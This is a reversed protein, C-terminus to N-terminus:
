GRKASRREEAKSILSSRHSFTAARLSTLLAFLIPSRM